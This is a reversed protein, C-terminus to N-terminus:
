TDFWDPEALGSNFSKALQQRATQWRPLVVLAERSIAKHGYLLAIRMSADPTVQHQQELEDAVQWAAKRQNCLLIMDCGNQLAILARQVFDGVVAAGQMALDDSFVAGNFGLRGRLIETIWVPSFGAPLKDIQPYIVHAMMIAHIGAQIMYRFPLLDLEEIEQLPRKDVPMDTHSDATISGHGPFHKGTAMMGAQSMGKVFAEALLGTIHPDRHFARSGIVTSIGQDIDLVPAFSIDIGISRIESAMLWGCESALSLAQQANHDHLKGFARMPPLQTFGERFRQVRGGEQDVAVLLPPSRLAKIASVLQELQMLSEFNRTFLIVGGVAPHQLLAIDDAVLVTGAIDVMLSGLM